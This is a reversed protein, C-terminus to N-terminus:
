VQYTQPLYKLETIAYIKESLEVSLDLRGIAGPLAPLVPFGM